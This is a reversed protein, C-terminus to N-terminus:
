HGFRLVRHLVSPRMLASPPDVLGSVRVFARSLIPDHAAAAHLREVYAGLLKQSRTRHGEVHPFRLDAGTAMQWAPRIIRAVRRQFRRPRIHGHRTLHRGLADAELAAITMGQGYIPNLSCIGDGIVTFGDPLDLTDYRRWTSAPFRHPVPDDLPEAGTIAAAIDGFALSRAFDEFGDPDLPPRDGCMGALTLMGTDDELLGLGGMRPSDPTPANIIALDGALADAGMRYRRTAYAVDVVVRDEDPPDFGLEALWAPTRSSRGTADVVLDACLTEEASSDARRLLRVGHIRDVASTAVLGAVDCDDIVDVEPRALVRTRVHHELLARSASIVTLGSTSPLLRHGSFYLRSVELVDGTRAGTAAIEDTLSPFMTELLRQGCALLAHAHRGQAAGRRNEATDPLRDREVIVVRDYHEALANAALLGAMGAGLVVARSNQSMPM